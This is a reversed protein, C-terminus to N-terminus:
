HPVEPANQGSPLRPLSGSMLAKSPDPGFDENDNSGSKM